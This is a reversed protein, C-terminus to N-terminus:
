SIGQEADLLAGVIATKFGDTASLEFVPDRASGLRRFRIQWKTAGIKGMPELRESGWSLGGDQSVRLMVQPNIDNDDNIGSLVRIDQSMVTSPLNPNQLVRVPIFSTVGGAGAQMYIQLRNLRIKRLSLQNPPFAQWSRLWKRKCGADEFTDLNFSYLNGNCFDGVINRGQFLACCNGRHRVFEGNDFGARQHWYGTVTDFCWTADAAPFNLVYFLHGEQQYAYALADDIRAYSQIEREIAHTSIRVSQYGRAQLVVGQGERSKSLWIVSGGVVIASYPAACGEQIFVGQLRQFAFGPLGANIWVETTQAGLLWVERHNDVISVINDPQGDKESFDLPDWTFVDNLNSQWWNQTGAQNLLFFGDQYACVVPFGAVFPLAIPAFNNTGIDYGYARNGDVLLLQKGNDVIGVPGKTSGLVGLKLGAFTGSIQYFTNGSVGFLGDNLARLARWPGDGIAGLSDLGPCGYLAGVAKGDKTEITEPYLNVCRQDAAILTRSQYFGGLIPTQVQPM